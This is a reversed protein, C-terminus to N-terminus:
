WNAFFPYSARPRTSAVTGTALGTPTAAHIWCFGITFGVAPELLFEAILLDDLDLVAPCCAPAAPLEGLHKMNM